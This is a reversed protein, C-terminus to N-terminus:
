CCYGVNFGFGLRWHQFYSLMKEKMKKVFKKEIKFNREFSIKNIFWIRIVISILFTQYCEIIEVYVFFFVGWFVETCFARIRYDPGHYFDIHVRKIKLRVKLKLISRKIASATFLVWVFSHVFSCFFSVM